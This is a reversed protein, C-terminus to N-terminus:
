SFFRRTGNPSYMGIRENRRASPTGVCSTGRSATGPVSGATSSVGDPVTPTAMEHSTKKPPRTRSATCLPAPNMM